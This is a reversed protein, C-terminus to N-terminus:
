DSPADTAADVDADVAADVAADPAADIEADVASDIAADIEADVAADADDGGSECQLAPDSGNRHCRDEFTACTYDEPCEGAPGCRFGCPPKPVDYCAQLALSGAGIALGLAVGLYVLRRM